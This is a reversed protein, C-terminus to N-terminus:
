QEKEFESVRDEQCKKIMYDNLLESIKVEQEKEYESVKDEQLKKIM